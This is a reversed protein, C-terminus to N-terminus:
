PRSSLLYYRWVDSDIGTQQCDNGFVGMNNSKSFKGGEYMLYETVALRTPRIFPEGTAMLTAPAMTSHFVINDKGMFQVLQVETDPEPTWWKQWGRGVAGATMSIYGIPAEFWVYLVKKVGESFYKAPVPVGWALDRTICRDELKHALWAKTVARANNSWLRM